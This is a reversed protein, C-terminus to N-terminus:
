RAARTGCVTYVAAMAEEHSRPAFRDIPRDFRLTEAGSATPPLHTYLASQDPAHRAHALHLPM